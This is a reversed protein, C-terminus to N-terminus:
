TYASRPARDRILQKLREVTEDDAGMTLAGRIADEVLYLLVAQGEEFSGTLRQENSEVDGFLRVSMGFLESFFSSVVDYGGEGTALLKGLESGQYNANSWHEIRRRRGFVPDYFRAVDGVAYIGPLSTEFRENVLVGDDLEPGSGDLLGVEPVVGIGVVALDADREHGDRTAFSTLSGNGRFESVEDELLLEVGKEQYLDVLYNSFAPAALPRFLQSGRDVVTVSVGLQTLSAAVELGIFGTGVAVARTAGRARERIASSDALSRLTFVGELESGPATPRRPTAGTALVLRDFALREGGRLQLERADHDIRDVVTELRLDVGSEAYFSAPEVYTGDAEIEGRLYRKSLPPRHYPISADASVVAVEDTGGGERYAKVLQATSLGGGVIALVSVSLSYTNRRTKPEHRDHDRVLQALLEGPRHEEITDREAHLAAVADSQCARVAGALGRQQPDEGGLGLAM